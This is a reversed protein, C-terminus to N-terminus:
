IAKAQSVAGSAAMILDDVPSGSASKHLRVFRGGCKRYISGNVISGANQNSGTLFVGNENLSTLVNGIAKSLVVDPFYSRNFINMARVVDFRRRPEDLMDYTEIHFNAYRRLHERAERCLLLIDRKELSEQDGELEAVLRKVATRILVARLIRNLPYLVWPESTSVPLVFPPFVIQLIKGGSDLVVTLRSGRRHVSTVKLCLDTAYFQLAKGFEPELKDFFDCATRADSIAMDHVVCSRRLAPSARLLEISRGDFEGFREKNTRKFVANNVAFPELVLEQVWDQDIGDTDLAQEYLGIYYNPRFRKRLPARSSAALDEITCIGRKFM